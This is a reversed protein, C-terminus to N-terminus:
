VGIFPYTHKKVPVDQLDSRVDLGRSPGNPDRGPVFGEPFGNIVRQYINVTQPSSLDAM